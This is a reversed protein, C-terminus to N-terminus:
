YKPGRLWLGVHNIILNDDAQLQYYNGNNDWVVNFRIITGNSPFFVREKIASNDDSNEYPISWTGSSTTAGLAVKMYAASLQGMNDKHGTVAVVIAFPTNYPIEVTAGNSSIVALVNDSGLGSFNEDYNQGAKVIYINEIGSNEPPAAFVTGTAALTVKAAGGAAPPVEATPWLAWAAAAAAVIIIAAAVWPLKSTMAKNVEKKEYKIKPAGVPM